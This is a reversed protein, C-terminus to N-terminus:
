MGLLFLHSGLLFLLFHKSLCWCDSFLPGLEYCAFFHNHPFIWIDELPNALELSWVIVDLKVWAYRGCLCRTSWDWYMQFPLELALFLCSTVPLLVQVLVCSAVGQILLKTNTSLLSLSPFRLSCMQKSRVLKFLAM